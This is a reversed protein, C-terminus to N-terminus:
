TTCNRYVRVYEFAHILVYIPLNMCLYMYVYIGYVIDAANRKTLQTLSTRKQRGGADGGTQSNTLLSTM